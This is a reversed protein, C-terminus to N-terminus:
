YFYLADMWTFLKSFNLLPIFAKLRRLDELGEYEYEYEYEYETTSWHVVQGDLWLPLGSTPSFLALLGDCHGRM